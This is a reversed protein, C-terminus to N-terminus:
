SPWSVPVVVTVDAVLFVKLPVILVKISMVGVNAPVGVTKVCPLLSAAVVSVVDAIIVITVGSLDAAAASILFAKPPVLFVKVPVVNAKTPIGTTKALPLLAMVLFLENNTLIVVVM